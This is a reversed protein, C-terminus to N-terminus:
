SAGRVEHTISGKLNGTDILPKKSKKRKSTRKKLPPRIGRVITTKIDSAVALGLKTLAQHLTAKGAIYQDQLKAILNAHDAKKADLTSRFFLDRPSVATKPVM